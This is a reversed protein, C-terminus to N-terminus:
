SPKKSLQTSFKGCMQLVFKLVIVVFLIFPGLWLLYTLQSFPPKFFIYEGYRSVLFKKIQQESEGKKLRQYIIQRLDKALPANSDALNQNQCVLCRLTETIQEFQKKKVVSNFPYIEQSQALCVSFFLLSLFFLLQSYFFGKSFIKL